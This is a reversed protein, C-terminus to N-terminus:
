SCTPSHMQCRRWTAPPACDQAARGSRAARDPQAASAMPPPHIHMMPATKKARAGIISCRNEGPSYWCRTMSSPTGTSRSTAKADGADAHAIMRVAAKRARAVGAHRNQKGPNAEEGYPDREGIQQGAILEVESENGKGAPIQTQKTGPQGHEGIQIKAAAKKENSECAPSPLPGFHSRVPPRRIRPRAM